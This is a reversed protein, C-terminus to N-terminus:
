PAVHRTEGNAGPGFGGLRVDSPRAFNALRRLRRARAKSSHGNLTLQLAFKYDM